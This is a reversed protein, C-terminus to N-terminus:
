ERRVAERQGSLLSAAEQLAELRREIPSDAPHASVTRDLLYDILNEAKEVLGGFSAAGRSRVYSDADEGSPLVVVRLAM